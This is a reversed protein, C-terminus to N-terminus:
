GMEVLVTRLVEGTAWPVQLLTTTRLSFPPAELFVGSGERLRIDPGHPTDLNLVRPAAPLHETVILYRYQRCNQLVRQIEANSLHQLVQRLLALEAPPLEDTTLDRRAFEVGPFASRNREILSQVIDVGVFREIGDILKRGVRFDGCGLDVVSHIGREEIFARVLRVYSETFGDESGAGSDFSGPKGGWVNRQYVREFSSRLDLGAYERRRREVDANRTQRLLASIRQRGFSYLERALTRGMGYLPADSHERLARLEEGVFRRRNKASVGGGQYNVWIEPVFTLRCNRLVRLFFEYDMRVRYDERYGGHAEYVSRPVFSAQHSVLARRFLPMDDNLAYGPITGASSAAFATVIGAGDEAHHRARAVVDPATFTDGANLMVVTEGSARAIGKNFAHAIGRDPESSLSLRHPSVDRDQLASLFQRTVADKSGGDVVVLEVPVDQALISEVTRQLDSGADLCITVVSAFPPSTSDPM